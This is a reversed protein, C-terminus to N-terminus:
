TLNATTTSNEKGDVTFTFTIDDSLTTVPVILVNVTEKSGSTISSINPNVTVTGATGSGYTGTSIDLTNSSIIGDNAISIKSIACDGEYNDDRTLNFKLKAYAHNITFSVPTGSIAIVGTQYCIDAIETYIQSTLTLSEDTFTSEESNYPYYACLNAESRTVYIPETDSAVDWGDASNTYKVNSRTGEYGTSVLRFIGIDGESLATSSRVSVSNFNINGIKLPVSAGKRFVNNETL